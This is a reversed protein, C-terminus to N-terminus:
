GRVAVEKKKGNQHVTHSSGPMVEAFMETEARTSSDDKARDGADLTFASVAQRLEQATLALGQSSVIMGEVQENLDEGAEKVSQMAGSNQEAIAATSEITAVVRTSAAAMEEAVASAEQAVQSVNDITRVMEDSSASVEQTAASIQEIQGAVAEVASLISELPKGGEQALLTGEAVEAAGEKTAQVSDVVGQQVMEILSAIEKTAGTVREALKRVEDAVVAFGRGQEGARAAEIAANLALLNTQAAIDDIVAVINGIEASKAGLNSIRESATNVASTIRGMGEVTKKVISMGKNAADNAQRASDASSQASIAVENVAKSVQSVVESAQAVAKAQQQSGEAIQEIATSLQQVESIGALANQTNLQAREAVEQSSRAIAQVAAGAQESGSSLHASAQTLSEATVSVEGVIQRLSATMNTIAHGLVDEESKPEISVTLDGQAIKDAVGAMEKMYAMVAGLERAMSGVEDKGNTLSSELSQDVDGRALRQSVIALRRMPGALRGALLVAVGVAVALLSVGILLVNRRLSNVEAMLENTPIVAGLGWRGDLVPHYSVTYGTGGQEFRQMVSESHTLVADAAMGDDHGGGGHANGTDMLMKGVLDKWSDSGITTAVPFPASAPDMSMLGAERRLQAIDRHVMITADMRNLLFNYGQEGYTRATLQNDFWTMPIEFHLIGATSADPLVVPTAVAIVWRGTDPSVYPQTSHVEGDSLAIAPGFFPADMEDPSMDDLPAVEGLAVRALEQGDAGILCIEDAGYREQVYLLAGNLGQRTVERQDDTEALFFQDFLANQRLLLLDSNAQAMLEDVSKAISGSYQEYRDTAGSALSGETTTLVLGGLGVAMLLAAGAAMFAIKARIPFQNFAISRLNM